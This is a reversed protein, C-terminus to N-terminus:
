RRLGLQLTRPNAMDRDTNGNNIVMLALRRLLIVFHLEGLQLPM